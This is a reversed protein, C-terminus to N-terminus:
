QKVCNYFTPTLPIETSPNSCIWTGSVQPVGFELVTGIVTVQPYYISFPTWNNNCADDPVGWVRKWCDFASEGSNCLDDFPFDSVDVPIDTDVVCKGRSDCDGPVVLSGANFSTKTAAKGPAVFKNTPSLCLVVATGFPVTQDCEFELGSEKVVSGKAGLITGTCVDSGCNSVCYSLCGGCLKYAQVETAVFSIGLLGIMMLRKFM